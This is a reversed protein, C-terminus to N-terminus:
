VRRRARMRVKWSEAPTKVGMGYQDKRPESPMSFAQCDLPDLEFYLLTISLM